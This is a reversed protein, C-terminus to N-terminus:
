SAAHDDEPSPLDPMDEDTRWTWVPMGAISADGETDGAPRDIFAAVAPSTDTFVMSAMATPSSNYALVKRFMREHDVATSLLTRDADGTFPLWNRDTTMLSLQEVNAYGALSVSFTTIAILRVDGPEALQWHELEVAFRKALKRYLDEELFWPHGPLHRIQMKFGHGAPDIAKVEGVGILLKTSKGPQRRATAWARMRRQELKSKRDASFPEPVFLAPGLPTKRVLKGDVASRLRRYVVGWSRHGAFGPHWSTLEAEDWLYHLVARLSLKNGDAQVTDSPTGGPEPAARNGSKSLSFGLRLATTGDTPNDVISQDAVAGYGSLEDPPLWSRCRHHHAAATGPMRKVILEGGAAAIYMPVGPSQCLCLPRLRQTKAQSLLQQAAHTHVDDILEDDVEFGTRIAM